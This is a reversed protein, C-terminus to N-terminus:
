DKSERKQAAANVLSNFDEQHNPNADTAPPDDGGADERSIHRIASAPRAGSQKRKKDIEKMRAERVSELNLLDFIVSVPLAVAIGANFEVDKLPHIETDDEAVFEQAYNGGHIYIIMGLLLYPFIVNISTQQTNQNTVAVRYGHERRKIREPQLNLFVPSGSTGGLSRTEILYAVKRPSAFDIPEEPMAAVNGIRVVPINKRYGVRGVFAGCIFVEDGLSLGIATPANLPFGGVSMSRLNVSNLNLESNEGHELGPLPFACVDVTPDDPYIWQSPPTPIVKSAGAVTNLRVVM